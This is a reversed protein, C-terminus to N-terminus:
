ALDYLESELRKIYSGYEGSYFEDYLIKIGGAAYEEAIKLFKDEDTVINLGDLEKIAIAKMIDLYDKPISALRIYGEKTGLKKRLGEKNGLCMSIMFININERKKFIDEDKLKDYFPRDVRNIFIRDREM